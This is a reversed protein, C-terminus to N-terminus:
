GMFDRGSTGVSVHLGARGISWGLAMTAIPMGCLTVLTLGPQVAFLGVAGLGLLLVIVVINFIISKMWM